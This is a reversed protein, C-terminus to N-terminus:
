LVKTQVLCIITKGQAREGREGSVLKEKLIELM